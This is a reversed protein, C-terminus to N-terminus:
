GDRRVVLHATHSLAEDASRQCDVTARPYGARRLAEQLALAGEESALDLTAALEARLRELVALFTPDDWPIVTVKLTRTPDPEM